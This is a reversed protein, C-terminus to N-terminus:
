TGASGRTAQTEAGAAEGAARGGRPDWQRLVDRASRPRAPDMMVAVVIAAVAAGPVPLSMIAAMAPTLAPLALAAYHLQTAPWLAPVALWAARRPGLVLLGVVAIPVLSPIAYASKGHVGAQEWIAASIEAAQGVYLDWRLFPATVAMVAVATIAPRWRGLIVVPIVAYIKLLIALLSGGRTVLLALVVIDPNAVAVSEIIPPFLLWWYPLRLQRIALVASVACIGIAVAVFAGQPLWAFPLYLILTPPPAAFIVGDVGQAWPNGGALLAQAAAHYIRADIGLGTAVNAAIYLSSIAAMELRLLWMAETIGGVRRM